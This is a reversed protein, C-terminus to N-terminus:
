HAEDMGVRGGMVYTATSFILQDSQMYVFICDLRESARLLQKCFGDAADASCGRLLIIARAIKHKRM